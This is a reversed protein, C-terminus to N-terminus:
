VEVLGYQDVCMTLPSACKSVMQFRDMDPSLVANVDGVM